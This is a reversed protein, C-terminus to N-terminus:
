VAPAMAEMAKLTGAASTSPLTRLDSVHRTNLVHCSVRPRLRRKMTFTDCHLLGTLYEYHDFFRSSPLDNEYRRDVDHAGESLVLPCHGHQCM